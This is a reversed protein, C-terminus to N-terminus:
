FGFFYLLRSYYGAGRGHSHIIEIRHRRAWILLRILVGLRFARHPLAFFDKSLERFKPGYPAEDPAAIFVDVQENIARVLELLYKQGGGHDARASIMLIRPKEM